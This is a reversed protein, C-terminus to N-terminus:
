AQCVTVIMSPSAPSVPSTGAAYPSISVQTSSASWYFEVYGGAPITLVYNWSAILSGNTGGHSSPVSIAGSSQVVDAGNKRLWIRADRTVTDTNVLQASFQINYADTASVTIKTGSVVSVGAREAITNLGIPYATTTSSITQSTTDYFSGYPRQSITQIASEVSQLNTELDRVLNNAWDQEYAIPPSSLRKTM